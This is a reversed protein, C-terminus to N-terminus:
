VVAINLASMKVGDMHLRFWCDNGDYRESFKLGFETLPLVSSHPITSYFRFCLSLPLTEALSFNGM